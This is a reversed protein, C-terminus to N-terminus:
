PLQPELVFLGNNIDSVIVIGSDFFPYNSWAGAFEARSHIPYTDFYAVERLEGGAINELSLIRLGASYNAQYVYDGKVYLNHDISSEQSRYTGNLQPNDLDELDWIYTHTRNIDGLEDLEDGLLFYRQDETLWGQHAYENGEYTQASITFTSDKQTANAITLHTESSNICIEENQYDPDPGNYIVCQTDHVYGTSNRGVTSDSHFGAFEPAQPNNIDVIHLGGGYTDSGVAYAFGSETNIAINHASGFEEYLYDETFRTSADSGERLRTLDFVQMGHPQEDSVVYLHDEYVKFDRWDSKAEEDDHLASSRRPMNSSSQSVSKTEELKGVVEPNTPESIDVFAVGDNLGVLAYEKGNSPDTWGWIDNLRLSDGPLQDLGVYALLDINRCPYTDDALGETCELPEFNSTPDNGCSLALAALITILISKRM